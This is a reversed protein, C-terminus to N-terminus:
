ADDDDDKLAIGLDDCIKRVTVSLSQITARDRRYSDVDRELTKIRERASNIEEKQAPTQVAAFKQILPRLAKLHDRCLPVQAGDGFTTGESPPACCILCDHLVPGAVMDDITLADKFRDIKRATAAKTTAKKNKM